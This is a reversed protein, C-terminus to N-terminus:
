SESEKRGLSSSYLVMRRSCPPALEEALSLEAVRPSRRTRVSKERREAECALVTPPIQRWTVWRVLVLALAMGLAGALAWPVARGLPSPALAPLGAARAEAQNEPHALAEEVAIRAEGIDRLRRKPDRELCRQLLRRISAPTSPPLKTWDIDQRLVAALM